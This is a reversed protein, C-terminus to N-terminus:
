LVRYLPHQDSAPRIGSLRAGYALLADATAVAPYVWPAFRMPGYLVFDAGESVTVALVAAMASTHAAFGRAKMREWTCMANAPACGTPYGLRDKVERISLAAWSASAVDLVGTDILINRIGAQQAAPLLKEELLKVRQWPRLAKTSFALVIASQIGCEQIAVLEEETYDEAISNYILRPMLDTGAFHRIAAIRAKQSPSDVLIPASTHGAVFEIYKVLAEGTDGVPDIFRPNGTFAAAEAEQDLLAAARQEDFLGRQADHVIQHKAFFISGALVTAREGPQGGVQVGGIDYAKQEREFRLMM